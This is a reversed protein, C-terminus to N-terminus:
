EGRISRLTAEIDDDTPDPVNLKRLEDQVENFPKGKHQDTIDYTKAGGLGKEVAKIAADPDTSHEVEKGDIWLDFDFTEGEFPKQPEDENYQFKLAYPGQSYSKPDKAFAAPVDGPGPKASLPGIIQIIDWYIDTGDDPHLVVFVGTPHHRQMYDQLLTVVGVATIGTM